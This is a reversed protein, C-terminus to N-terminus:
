TGTLHFRGQCPPGAFFFFIVKSVSPHSNPPVFVKEALRAARLASDKRRKWVM